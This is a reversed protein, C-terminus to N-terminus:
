KDDEVQQRYDAIAEAETRGWGVPGGGGVGDSDTPEYGEPYACWDFQRLPIPPYVHETIIRPADM